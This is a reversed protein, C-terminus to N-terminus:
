SGIAACQLNACPASPATGSGDKCGIGLVEEAVLEVARLRPRRYPRRQQERTERSNSM